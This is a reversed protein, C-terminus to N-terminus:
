SAAPNGTAAIFAPYDRIYDAEDYAHSALVVVVCHDSFDSMEVWLLPPLHLGQDARDLFYEQRTAGDDIIMRCSGSACILLQHQERHAHFGRPAANMGVIYFLRNIAFPLDAGNEVAVLMGRADTVSTLPLLRASRPDQLSPM